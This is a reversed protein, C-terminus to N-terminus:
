AAPEKKPAVQTLSFRYDFETIEPDEVRVGTGTAKAKVKLGDIEKKQKNINKEISTIKKGTEGVFTYTKSKSYKKFKFGSHDFSKEGQHSAALLEYDKNAYPVNEHKIQKICEIARRCAIDLEIGNAAICGNIVDAILLVAHKRALEEHDYSHKESNM